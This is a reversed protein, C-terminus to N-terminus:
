GERKAFIVKMLLVSLALVFTILNSIIVPNAHIEWGYVGWLAVGLSFLIFMSYSVDEASRSRYTKLIQPLFAITTLCGAVLGLSDVPSPLDM